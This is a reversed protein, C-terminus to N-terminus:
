PRNASPGAQAPGSQAAPAGSESSGKKPAGTHIRHIQTVKNSNSLVITDHPRRREVAAETEVFAHQRARRVDTIKNGNSVVITDHKPDEGMKAKEEVLSPVNRLDTVHNGNSLVITDHQNGGAQSFTGQAGSNAAQPPPTPANTVTNPPMQAADSKEKTETQAQAQFLESRPSPPPRL